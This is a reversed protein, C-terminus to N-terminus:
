SGFGGPRLIRFVERALDLPSDLHEIVEFLTVIDFSDDDLKAEHLLCPHVTFGANIATQAAKKAPEVGVVNAFNMDKAVQLVSGSSCGVDLFSLKSVPTDLKESANNLIGSIRQNHRTQAKGSPLTGEPVNFEQMSEKYHEPTCASVLQDCHSCRRLNGEPLHIDTVTLTSDCGVPCCNIMPSDSIM